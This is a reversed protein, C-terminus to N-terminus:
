QSRSFSPPISPHPHPHPICPPPPHMIVQAEFCMPCIFTDDKDPMPMREPMHSQLCSPHFWNDCFDCGLM